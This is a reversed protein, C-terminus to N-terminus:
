KALNVNMEKIHYKLNSNYLCVSKHSENQKEYLKGGGM